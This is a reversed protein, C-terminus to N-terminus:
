KKEHSQRFITSCTHFASILVVERLLGRVVSRVLRALFRPCHKARARGKVCVGPFGHFKRAKDAPFPKIYIKSEAAHTLLKGKFINM